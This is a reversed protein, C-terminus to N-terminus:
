GWPNILEGISKMRKKLDLLETKLRENEEEVVGIYLNAMRIDTFPEIPEARFPDSAQKLWDNRTSGVGFDPLPDEELMINKNEIMAVANDLSDEVMFNKEWAEEFQKRGFSTKKSVMCYKDFNSCINAFDQHDEVTDWAHNCISQMVDRISKVSHVTKTRLFVDLLDVAKDFTTGNV